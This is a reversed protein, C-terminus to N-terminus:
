DKLLEIDGFFRQGPLAQVYTLVDAVDQDSM